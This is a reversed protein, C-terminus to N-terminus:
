AQTVTGLAHQDLKCFAHSGALSPPIRDAIAYQGTMPKRAWEAVWEVKMNNCLQQQLNMITTTETTPELEAAEKAM